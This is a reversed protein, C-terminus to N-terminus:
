LKALQSRAVNNMYSNRISLNVTKMYTLFDNCIRKRTSINKFNFKEGGGGWFM